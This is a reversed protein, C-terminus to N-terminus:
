VRMIDCRTVISPSVDKKKETMDVAWSKGEAHTLHDQLGEPFLKSDGFPCFDEASV